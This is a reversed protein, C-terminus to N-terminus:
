ESNERPYGVAAFNAKGPKGRQELCWSNPLCDRKGLSKAQGTHALLFLDTKLPTQQHLKVLM